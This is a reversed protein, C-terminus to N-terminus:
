TIPSASGAFNTILRSVPTPLGHSRKQSAPAFSRCLDMIPRQDHALHGYWSAGRLAKDEQPFLVDMHARLWDEGFYFLFTLYRGMMARPIRGTATRDALQGDFFGRISSSNALAKRPEAALSSSPDKSFWFMLLFCLEVALGRLTAQAAFFPERRYREEFDEIEPENPAIRILTEVISRVQDAHKFAIGEDGQRLGAALM